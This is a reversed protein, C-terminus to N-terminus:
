IHLLVSFGYIPLAIDMYSSTPNNTCFSLFFFFIVVIAHCLLMTNNLNYM